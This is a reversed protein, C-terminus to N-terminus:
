GGRSVAERLRQITSELEEIREVGTVLLHADVLMEVHGIYVAHRIGKVREYVDWGAPIHTEMWRQGDTFKDIKDRTM